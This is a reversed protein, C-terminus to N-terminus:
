IPSGTPPARLHHQSSIITIPLGTYQITRASIKKFLTPPSIKQVQEVAQQSQYHLQTVTDTESEQTTSTTVTTKQEEATEKQDHMYCVLTAVVYNNFM